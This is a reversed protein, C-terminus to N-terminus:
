EMVLLLKGAQVIAGAEVAIRSVTGARSAKLQNQMKMAEMVILAQDAKVADGVNVLLQVILGPM